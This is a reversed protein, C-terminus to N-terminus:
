YEYGFMRLDWYFRERLRNRLDDPLWKPDLRGSDGQQGLEVQGQGVERSPDGHFSSIDMPDREDWFYRGPVVWSKLKGM